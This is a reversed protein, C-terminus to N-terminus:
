GCPSLIEPMNRQGEVVNGIEKDRLRRPERKTERRDCNGGNKDGPKDREGRVESTDAGRETNLDVNRELPINKADHADHTSAAASAMDAGATACDTVGALLLAARGAPAKAGAAADPSCAM